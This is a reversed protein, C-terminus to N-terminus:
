RRRRDAILELVERFVRNGPPARLDLAQCRGYYPSLDLGVGIGHIAVRGDRERRAVVERLHHDLYQEDNALATASDMPCGDSVVFLLRRKADRAELRNCAWDVAEGDVGERFLDAKLLAAIDRRARRWTTDADKFVLHLVENLRGPHPPRGARNWERMVRGGNWGGTTFGLLETAVGAQEFARLLVDALMAISEIHQRMSGSCDILFAAVCDAEPEIRESRFLRREAPSAFLTALRRGDIRGEEQGDDWGDTAPLALLAKLERALRAVNVGQAAIRRDLQERYEVLLERRALSAARVERDFATTFARYGGEGESLVRSTGPEVSAVGDDADADFDILLGFRRERADKNEDDDPARAGQAAEAAEIQGGVWNAIALAHAAYRAQDARERKLGTLAHGIHPVIGARTAELLDETAELVPEGSVRSRCVQAVTYLLLGKAGETGGAEHFALSWREFRHRLNHAVGPLAPPALSEVRIQELLEFVWRRTPEAPMLSRHLAADSHVLRLAMGDAAGRFSAFDDHEISPMLHPGFIPLARGGRHLRRARFHLEREGALARISAACLEEVRQQARAAAQAAGGGSSLTSASTAPHVTM